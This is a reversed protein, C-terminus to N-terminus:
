CIIKNNRNIVKNKENEENICIRVSGETLMDWEYFYNNSCLYFKDNLISILEFSEFAEPIKYARKCMRENNKTPTSYIWIIQKEDYEDVVKGYLLFEGKLNFTCYYPRYNYPYFDLKNENERNNM